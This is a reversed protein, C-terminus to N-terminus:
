IKVGSFYGNGKMLVFSCFCMHRAVGFWWKGIKVKLWLTWMKKNFFFEAFLVEMEMILEAMCQNM